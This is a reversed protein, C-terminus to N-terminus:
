EGAENLAAQMAEEPTRGEGSGTYVRGYRDPFFDAVWSDDDATLDFKSGEPVDGPKM